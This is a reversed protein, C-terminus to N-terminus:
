VPWSQELTAPGKVYFIHPRTEAQLYFSLWDVVARRTKEARTGQKGEGNESLNSVPHHLDLRLLPILSIPSAFSGLAHQRLPFAQGACLLLLLLPLSGVLLITVAALVLVGTAETQSEGPTTMRTVVMRSGGPRWSRGPRAFLGRKLTGRLLRRKLLVNNVTESDESEAGVLLELHTGKRRM